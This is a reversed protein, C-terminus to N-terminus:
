PFVESLLILLLGGIALAILCAAATMRPKGRQFALTQARAAARKLPAVSLAGFLNSRRAAAARNPFVQFLL